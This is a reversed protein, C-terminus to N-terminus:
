LRLTQRRLAALAQDSEDQAAFANGFGIWAPAFHNDIASAKTFYTRALDHRRALLYYCGVSFWSVAKQPYAEVLQHAVGVAAHLLGGRPGEGLHVERLEEVQGVASRSGM